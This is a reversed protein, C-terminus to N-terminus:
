SPRSRKANRGKTRDDSTTPAAHKRRSRLNTGGHSPLTAKKSPAPRRDAAKKRTSETKIGAATIISAAPIERLYKLRHRRLPAQIGQEILRLYKEEGPVAFTVAIGTEGARGTRGIRHIYSETDHPIDYNFIHTVGEIDLGRAAIDTAVLLQLRTERFRRLVQERKNQSLDGHIEDVAYGRRILEMNLAIVRQKTHCFIMALYPRYEDIMQCLRDAKEAPNLEVVIQRIENLTVSPTKVRIDQPKKMYRDALARIKSPITASFLITQRQEPTLVLIEEVEGLFGMHLMQDAEDLVLRRVGGLELAKRRAHDLIRGPTGIIIHPQGKLQHTQKELTHGGFVSVVNISLPIALKKAEKDIQQALERTPTIILAQVCAKTIDISELIPLLFALTKGTGTQSQAVLDKGTLLYPITQIQIPTPVTIGSEKLIKSLTQRIGLATFDNSM